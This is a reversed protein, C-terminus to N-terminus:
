LPRQQFSNAQETTWRGYIHGWNDKFQRVVDLRVGRHLLSPPPPQPPKLDHPAVANICTRCVVYHCYPCTSASNLPSASQPLPPDQGCLRCLFPVAPFKSASSSVSCSLPALTHGKSCQIAYNVIKPWIIGQECEWETKYDIHKSDAAPPPPADIRRIYNRTNSHYTYMREGGDSDSEDMHSSHALNATLGCFLAHKLSVPPHLPSLLLPLTNIGEFIASPPSFREEVHVAVHADSSSARGAQTSSADSKLDELEPLEVYKHGFLRM